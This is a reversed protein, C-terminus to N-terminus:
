KDEVQGTSFKAFMEKLIIYYNLELIVCVIMSYTLIDKTESSLVRQTPTDAGSRGSVGDSDTKRHRSLNRVGKMFFNAFSKSMMHFVIGETIGDSVASKIQDLFNQM